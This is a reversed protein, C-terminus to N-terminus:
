RQTSQSSFTSLHPGFRMPRPSALFYFPLTFAALVPASVISSILIIGLTCPFFILNLQFLCGAYSRRSAKDELSSVALCVVLYLKEIIQKFRDRVFGIVLLKLPNSFELPLLMLLLHLACHEILAAETNQWIWRYARIIALIEIYIWINERWPDILVTLNYTLLLGIAFNFLVARIQWWILIALEKQSSCCKYFPSRFCGFCLFVKQVENSFKFGLFCALVIWGSLFNTNIKEM